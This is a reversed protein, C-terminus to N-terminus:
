MGRGNVKFKVVYYVKVWLIYFLERRFMRKLFCGLNRDVKNSMREVMCVLRRM